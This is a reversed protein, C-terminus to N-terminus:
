LSKLLLGPMPLPTALCPSLWGANGYSCGQGVQGKDLVVVSVGRPVVPSKASVASREERQPITEPPSRIAALLWWGQLPRFLIAWRM